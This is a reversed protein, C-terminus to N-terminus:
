FLTSSKVPASTFSQLRMGTRSLLVKHLDMDESSWAPSRCCRRDYATCINNIVGEFCDYWSIANCLFIVNKNTFYITLEVRIFSVKNVFMPITTKFIDARLCMTANEFTRLTYM